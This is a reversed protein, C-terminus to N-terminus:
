HAAQPAFKRHSLQYWVGALYAVLLALRIPLLAPDDPGTAFPHGLPLRVLTETTTFVMLLFYSASLALTQVADDGRWGGRLTFTGAALLALTILTLVQGPTFGREPIFGWSSVSGALMTLLYLKGVLNRPDIKGDRLFAYLGLFIPLVSIATHFAGFASMAAFM